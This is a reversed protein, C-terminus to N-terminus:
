HLTVHTPATYTHSIIRHRHRFPIIQAHGLSVQGLTSFTVKHTVELGLLPQKGTTMHPTMLADESVDHPIMPEEAKTGKHWKERLSIVFTNEDLRSYKIM